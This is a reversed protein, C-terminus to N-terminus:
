NENYVEGGALSGMAGWVGYPSTGASYSSNANAPLTLNGTNITNPVFRVSGDAFAALVGGPHNSTASFFVGVAATVTIRTSWAARATRRFSRTFRVSSRGGM